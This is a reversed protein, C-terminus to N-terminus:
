WLRREKVPWVSRLQGFGQKGRRARVATRRRALGCRVSGNGGLGVVHRRLNGRRLRRMLVRSAYGVLRFRREGGCRMTGQRDGVAMSLRAWGCRAAGCRFRGVADSKDRGAEIAAVAKGLRIVGHRVGGLGGSGDKGLRVPCFWVVVAMRVAGRRVAGTWIPGIRLRRDPGYGAWGTNGSRLRRVM